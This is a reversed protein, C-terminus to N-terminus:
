LSATIILAVVGGAAALFAIHTILTRMYRWATKVSGFLGCTILFVMGLMCGIYFWFLLFTEM